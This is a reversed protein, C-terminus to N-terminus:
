ERIRVGVVVEWIERARWIREWKERGKERREPPWMAKGWDERMRTERELKVVRDREGQRDRMVM